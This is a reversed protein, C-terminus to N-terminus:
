RRFSTADNYMRDGQYESAKSSNRFEYVKGEYENVKIQSNGKIADWTTKDIPGLQETLEADKAYTVNNRIRINYKERDAIMRKSEDGTGLVGAFVANEAQALDERAKAIAAAGTLGGYSGTRQADQYAADANRLQTQFAQWSGALESSEKTRLDDLIGERTSKAYDLNAQNFQLRAEASKSKRDFGESPTEAGIANAMSDLRRGIFTTGNLRAQRIKQNMEAQRKSQEKFGKGEVLGHTLGRGAGTFLGGISRWGRGEQLMNVANGVGGIALGSVAGTINKGFLAQEEFKKLPNLTLGDAKIGFFDELLKPVQKAFMLAGIILFINLWINNVFLNKYNGRLLVIMFVAFDIAILRIFVSVYTKICEKGWKQFIEQGKGLDMNSIIPIPAIIQLFLLKIARTALDMAFSVLVLLVIVGAVSSVIPTYDFAFVREQPTELVLDYDFFIYSMDMTNRANYISTRSNDSLNEYLLDDCIKTDGDEIQKPTLQKYDVTVDWIEDCSHGFIDVNPTIFGSYLYYGIDMKISGETNDNTSQTIGNNGFFIKEIIRSNVIVGQVRYAEKFIINISMLLALSIFVNLILKGGGQKGDSIKDPSIMYNILSVALKFLMFIGLILGIRKGLVKIIDDSYLVLESLNMLLKYIMTILKALVGDIWSFLFRLINGVLKAM